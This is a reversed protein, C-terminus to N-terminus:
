RRRGRGGGVWSSAQIHVRFDGAKEGLVFIEGPAKEHAQASGPDCSHMGQRDKGSFFFPVGGELFLDVLELAPQGALVAEAINGAAVGPRM